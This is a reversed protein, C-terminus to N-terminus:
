KTKKWVKELSIFLIEGLVINVISALVLVPLFALLGLAATTGFMPASAGISIAMSVPGNLIVGIIGTIVLNVPEPVRDKMTKYSYGYGLMTIAMTVAIVFGMVVGGNPFGSTIESFIHGLFGIAMGYMPGLLLSALFGPLSDFAITGYIKVYSGVFALAIFLATIVLNKTTIRTKVKAEM